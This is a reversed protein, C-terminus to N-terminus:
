SYEGKGFDHKESMLTLDVEHYHHTINYKEFVMNLISQSLYGEFLKENIQLYSEYAKDTIQIISFHTKGQNFQACIYAYPEFDEIDGNYIEEGDLYVVQTDMDGCCECSSYVEHKMELKM